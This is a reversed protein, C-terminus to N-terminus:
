PSRGLEKSRNRAALIAEVVLKTYDNEELHSIAADTTGGRSTVAERLSSPDLDSEIALLASGFVTQLVLREAMESSMGMEVGSEIMAEMTHFVYAPGTGSLATVPDMLKEPAKLCVGVSGLVEEVRGFDLETSHSGGCLVSIGEGVLAPLNPMVRIVSPKGGLSAEISETTVGAAISMITQDSSISGSIGNLLASLNQPKAALVVLDASSAVQMADGGDSVGLDECLVDVRGQDLDCVVVSQSPLTEQEVIGRVLAAGMNGVGIVGVAFRREQAVLM